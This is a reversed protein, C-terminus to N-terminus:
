MALSSKFSREISIYMYIFHTCVNDLLLLEPKFCVFFFFCSFSYRGSFILYSFRWIDFDDLIISFDCYLFSLLCPVTNRM